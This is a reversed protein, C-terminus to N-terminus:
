LDLKINNEQKSNFTQVTDESTIVVPDLKSYGSLVWKSPRVKLMTNYEVTIGVLERQRETWGNRNAVIINQLNSMVSTDVNPVSEQVWKMIADSAATGTRAEAYSNYIEKLKDMQAKSVQASQSIVKTMNDFDAKNTELKGNYLTVLSDARNFVSMVYGGVAVTAIVAFVIIGIISAIVIKKM